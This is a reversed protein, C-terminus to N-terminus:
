FKRITKTKQEQFPTRNITETHQEAVPPTSSSKNVQLGAAAAIASMIDPTAKGTLSLKPVQPQQNQENITKMMDKHGKWHLFVNNFHDYDPDGFEKGLAKSRLKRGDCGNMWSFCTAAETGHDVSEDGEVPISPIYQPLQSLQQESQEVQQEMNNGQEIIDPSIQQGSSTAKVALQKALDHKSSLEQHAKNAQDWEPNILPSANVLLEIEELQKTESDAEDITIIDDIHLAKTIERANSPTAIIAGVEQNSNAMELIMMIKAERATGSEPIANTTEAKCKYNGKLNEPKVDIDEDDYSGSLNANGNDACCKVAQSIATAFMENLTMWVPGVRELSQNLRIQTAGVTNDQGEGGGFLAPTAGDISQLLPGTYMQFLELFGPLPQAQPTQGIKGQISDGEGVAASIFRQPDARLEAMAETSFAQDDLVTIPISGRIFKDWLEAWVNIRKQIPIDSSGLSRRNQGFGRTAMGLALHDDMSEEWCCVLVDNVVIAFLGTTFNKLFFERQDDKLETSYFIEPRQWSYCITADRMNATGTLFKSVLGSRTNIRAIKEFANEANNGTSPSIKEKVWPFMARAKAYDVEEFISAFACDSLKDRM